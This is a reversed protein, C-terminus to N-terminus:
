TEHQKSKEQMKIRLKRLASKEIEHVRQKSVGYIRAIEAFSQRPGFLGYHRDVIEKEKCCLDKLSEDLKRRVEDAAIRADPVDTAYTARRQRSVAQYTAVARDECRIAFGTHSDKYISEPISLQQNL